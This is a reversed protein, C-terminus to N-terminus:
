PKPDPASEKPALPAKPLPALPVVNLDGPSGPEHPVVKGHYERREIDYGCLGLRPILWDHTRPPDVVVPSHMVRRVLNATAPQGYFALPYRGRPYVPDMDSIAHICDCGNGLRAAEGIVDVCQYGVAGSDLFEKQVRFRYAFGHWVEYPGWMTTDQKTRVANRLTDHLDYNRGPEVHRSLADIDLKTPLWSITHVELAPESGPVDVARVLTAWTHTYAPRRSKDQSGFFLVYYREGPPPPVRALAEGDIHAAPTPTKKATLACGAAPLVAALMLLTVARAM